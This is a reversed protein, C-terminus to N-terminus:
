EATGRVLLSSRVSANKLHLVRQRDEDDSFMRFDDESRFRVVHIEYPVEIGATIISEPNPRMRLLLEGRYKSILPLAVHEFAQFTREQGDNVYVFQTLYLM